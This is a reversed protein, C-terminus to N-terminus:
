GNRLHAEKYERSAPVHDRRFAAAEADTRRPASAAPTATRPPSSPLSFLAAYGRGGARRVEAPTAGQMAALIQLQRRQKKSNPAVLGGSAAFLSKRILGM